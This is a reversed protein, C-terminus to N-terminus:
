FVSLFVQEGRILGSPQAPDERSWLSLWLLGWPAWLGKGGPLDGGLGETDWRLGCPELCAGWPRLSLLGWLQPRLGGRNQLFPTPLPGPTAAAWGQSQLLTLHSTLGAGAESLDRIKVSWTHTLTHTHTHSHTRASRPYGRSSSWHEM